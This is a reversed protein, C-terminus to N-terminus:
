VASRSAGATTPPKRSTAIRTMRDLLTTTMKPDGFVADWEGLPSIPRPSPGGANTSTVALRSLLQGETRAFPLCDPEDLMVVEIRSLQTALKGPKGRHTEQERRTGPRDYQIPARPHWKAPHQRYHRQRPADEGTSTAGVLVITCQGALFSGGYPLRALEDEVPTRDFSVTDLDKVVPLKDVPMRNRVPAAHGCPTEPRLLHTRVEMM